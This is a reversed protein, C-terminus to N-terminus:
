ASKGREGALGFEKRVDHGVPQITSSIDLM